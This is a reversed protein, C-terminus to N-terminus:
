GLVICMAVVVAVLCVIVRFPLILSKSLGLDVVLSKAGVWMHITLAAVLMLVLASFAFSAQVADPGYLMTTAIHAIALAALVGGTAWKLALHQKKRKSPPFEADTLQEYSTVASVAIHVVIAGVGIWIIWPASSRLPTVSELGGLISHAVFFVVVIASVIGNVM